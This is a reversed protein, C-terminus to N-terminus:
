IKNELGLGDGGVKKNLRYRIPLGSALSRSSCSRRFLFVASATREDSAMEDTAYAVSCVSSTSATSPVAASDYTMGIEATMTPSSTSTASDYRWVIKAYGPPPPDYVTALSLRPVM